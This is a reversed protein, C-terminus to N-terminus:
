LATEYSFQKEFRRNVNQVVNAYKAMSTESQLAKVLELRMGDQASKSSADVMSLTRNQKELRSNAKRASDLEAQCIEVDQQLKNQSDLHQKNIVQCSEISAKLFSITQAHGGIASISAREQTHLETQLNIAFDQMKSQVDINEAMFKAVVIEINKRHQLASQLLALNIKEYQAIIKERDHIHKRLSHQAQARGYVQRLRAASETAMDDAATDYGNAHAIQSPSQQQKQHYRRDRSSHSRGPVGRPRRQLNSQLTTARDFCKKMARHNSSTIKRVVDQLLRMWKECDFSKTSSNKGVASLTRANVNRLQAVEETLLHLERQLNLESERSVGGNAVRTTTLDHEQRAVEPDVARVKARKEEEIDFYVLQGDSRYNRASHAQKSVSHEEQMDHRNDKDDDRNRNRPEFEGRELDCRFYSQIKSTWKSGKNIDSHCNRDKDSVFANTPDQSPRAPDRRQQSPSRSQPQAVKKLHHRWKAFPNPSDHAEDSSINKNVQAPVFQDIYELESFAKMSEACSFSSPSTTLSQFEDPRGNWVIGRLGVQRLSEQHLMVFRLDVPNDSVLPWQMEWIARIQRELKTVYANLSQRQEFTNAYHPRHSLKRARQASALWRLAHVHWRELVDLDHRASQFMCIRVSKCNLARVWHDIDHFCNQM